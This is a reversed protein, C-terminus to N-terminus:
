LGLDLQRTRAADPADPFNSVTLGLLRVPLRPPTPVRLLEAALRLLEDRARVERALTRSRTTITFDSHKIKLTVTRGATEARTLREAVTEAIPELRALMAEVETLDEDFTREAGLSKRERDPEVPREDVGRAIRFYHRGAKGFRAVLEDERRDRLDAGTHIGMARMKAATAPGVGHFREVPLGAVFAEAEEPRIVALGDPKRLDSALKALFKNFSVGASATLGTAARIEEKIARAILTGSPPGRKPETVDLYAEDLSLPEVLDTYSLLVERIRASAKRYADFRAKVFLLEPCLRKAVTSPMASRVGFPRAEYSATMVVGRPGAGGVAIPRGRLAPDDRQEVAAFFADLDVHLITRTGVRPIRRGRPRSSSRGLARVPV